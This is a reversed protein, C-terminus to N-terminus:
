VLAETRALVVCACTLVCLLLGRRTGPRWASGWCVVSPRCPLGAGQGARCARRASCSLLELDQRAGHPSARGGGQGRQAIPTHLPHCRAASVPCGEDAPARTAKVASAPCLRPTAVRSGSRWCARRESGADLARSFYHLEPPPTRLVDWLPLPWTCCCCCCSCCCPESGRRLCVAVPPPPPPLGLGKM